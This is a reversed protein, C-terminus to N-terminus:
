AGYNEPWYAATTPQLDTTEELLKVYALAHIQSDNVDRADAWGVDKGTLWFGTRKLVADQVQVKTSNPQWIVSPLSLADYVALLAGEIRLPEVEPFKTRGDLKFSECVTVDPRLLGLTSTMWEIWGAVGGQVLGYDLRMLPREPDYAWTSWGTALGPDIALIVDTM